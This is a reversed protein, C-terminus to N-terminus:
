AAASNEEVFIGKDGDLYYLRDVELTPLREHTLIVITATSKCTNIVEALLKRSRDDLNSWPEDLIM